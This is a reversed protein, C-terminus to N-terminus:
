SLPRRRVVSSLLFATKWGNDTVVVLQHRLAACPWALGCPWSCCITHGFAAGRVYRCLLLITHWCRLGRLRKSNLCVASRRRRGRRRRRRRRRRFFLHLLCLTRDSLCPRLCVGERAGPIKVFDGFRKLSACFLVFFRVCIGFLVPSMLVARQQVVSHDCIGCTRLRCSCCFIRQTGIHRGVQLQRLAFPTIVM